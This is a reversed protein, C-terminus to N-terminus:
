ENKNVETKKEEAEKQKAKRKLHRGLLKTDENLAEIKVAIIYQIITVLPAFLYLPSLQTLMIWFAKWFGFRDFIEAVFIFYQRLGAPTLIFTKEDYGWGFFVDKFCGGFHTLFGFHGYKHFVVPIDFAWNVIVIIAIFWYAIDLFDSVGKEYMIAQAKSEPNKAIFAHRNAKAEEFEELIEDYDSM